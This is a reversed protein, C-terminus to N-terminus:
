KAQKLAETVAWYFAGASESAGSVYDVDASQRKAVQPPLKEIVDCSYRTWCQAITASTIRGGEILVAAQIDGHRSTGWGLYKGDKWVTPTAPIVPAAPAPPAPPTSETKTEVPLQTVTAPTDAQAPTAAPTDVAAKELHASLAPTPAVDAPQLKPDPALTSVPLAVPLVAPVLHPPRREAAQLAFRDAAGRTRLYGASYVALVAASSLAVLSNAVKKNSGTRAM